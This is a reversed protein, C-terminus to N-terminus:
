TEKTLQKRVQLYDPREDADCGHQVCWRTFPNNLKVLGCKSCVPSAIGAVRRNFVHPESM